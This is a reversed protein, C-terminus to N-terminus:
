WLPPSRLPVRAFYSRCQIIGKEGGGPGGLGALQPERLARFRVTGGVVVAVIGRHEGLTVTLRPVDAYDPIEARISM